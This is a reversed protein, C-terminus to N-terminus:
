KMISIVKSIEKSKEVGLLIKKFMQPESIIINREERKDGSTGM